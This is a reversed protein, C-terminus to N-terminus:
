RGNAGAAIVIRNQGDPTLLIAAAGTAVGETPVVGDVIIGEEKLATRLMLGAPDDGVRGIMAVSAGMRACAVAQNAGKGGCFTASRESALTEGAEPMRPINLVFDLNLSGLVAVTRSVNAPMKGDESACFATRACYLDLVRYRALM